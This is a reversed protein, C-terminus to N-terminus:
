APLWRQGQYRSPKIVFSRPLRARGPDPAAGPHPGRGQACIEHLWPALVELPTPHPSCLGSHPRWGWPGKDGPCRPQLLARSQPSGWARSNTRFIVVGHPSVNELDAGHLIGLFPGRYHPQSGMERPMVALTSYGAAGCLALWVSELAPGWSTGTGLLVCLFLSTKRPM